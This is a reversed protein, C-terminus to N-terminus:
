LKVLNMIGKEATSIFIALELIQRFPSDDMIAFDGRVKPRRETFQQVREGGVIM